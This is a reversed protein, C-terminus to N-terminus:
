VGILDTIVFVMPNVTKSKYLAKTLSDGGGGGLAQKPRSSSTPFTTRRASFRSGIARIPAPPNAFCRKGESDKVMVTDLLPKVLVTSEDTAVLKWSRGCMEKGSERPYDTCPCFIGLIQCGKTGEKGGLFHENDEVVGLGNEVGM